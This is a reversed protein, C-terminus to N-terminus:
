KVGYIKVTGATFSSDTVVVISTIASTTLQAGGLWSAKTTASGNAFAGFSTIGKYTSASAYNNVTATFYNVGGTALVAEQNGSLYFRAASYSVLTGCNIGALYSTYADNLRMDLSGDASMTVGYIQIYLSNYTQNISSITVSAGSLTTTSLLTMGGTQAAPVQTITM